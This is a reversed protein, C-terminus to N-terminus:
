LQEAIVRCRKKYFAIGYALIDSRGDNKLRDAYRRDKIQEMAKKCANELGSFDSAYKLEIVIGMDPDEPEILIDSFGDGSEANSLILWDSESRLLGLLVGHYFIEKEEDRAKTDLISIMNNLIRTLQKQIEDSDRELFAKCFTQMSGTDKRIKEKFWEQIQTIYVERVERNPIALRYIGNVPKGIRTLYGTTFLVSWLNDIHNDIEDYTLEMRVSKEIAEGAILREIEDRTTKNAKDIFRKVLENGSTNLWYSQPQAGPEGCLRDVHNIVDWPCYIDADGFHYGDYWEKVKEFHEQLNYNALLKKVGENTFGFEEDYRVDDAAYVKFNNLGTFISEKSVRLCGTLVAFQLDDNTKLAQGFLGRILSVMEKYYGHQFAKDLPVDYEDILIMAKQGYHRCLLQSLTQLSSVLMDEDMSYKGNVLHIIARYKSRENETLKESDALFAFREAEVGILETLRYKAAEISLGDIGKLSLFIVPYKGM